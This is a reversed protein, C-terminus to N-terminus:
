GWVFLYIETISVVHLNGLPALIQIRRLQMEAKQQTPPNKIEEKAQLAGLQRTGHPQKKNADWVQNM